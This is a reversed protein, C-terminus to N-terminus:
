ELISCVAGTEKVVRIVEDPIFSEGEIRLIKDCDYLDFNIRRGPFRQLLLAVLKDAHLMEQVDTKFVELV